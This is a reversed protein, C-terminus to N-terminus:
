ATREWFTALGPDVAPHALLIASVVAFAGTALAVPRPAPWRPRWGEMRDLLGREGVAYLPALALPAFKVLSAAAVFGGRAIPSGFFVLGRILLAAVLSDNSNSQLAFAASPSALWAFALVM